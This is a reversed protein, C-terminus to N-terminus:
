HHTLKHATMMRSQRMLNGDISRLNDLEAKSSPLATLRNDALLKAWSM